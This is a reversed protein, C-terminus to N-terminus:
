NEVVDGSLSSRDARGAPHAVPDALNQDVELVVADDLHGPIRLARDAPAIEAGLALCRRREEVVRITEGPLLEDDLGAVTLRYSVYPDSARALAQWAVCATRSIWSMETSRPPSRM